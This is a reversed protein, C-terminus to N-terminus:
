FHLAKQYKTIEFYYQYPLENIFLIVKGEVVLDIAKKINYVKLYPIPFASGQDLREIFESWNRETSSENHLPTGISEQLCTMDVISPIYILQCTHEHVQLVQYVVDSCEKLQEKLNELMDEAM